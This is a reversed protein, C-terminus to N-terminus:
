HPLFEWLHGGVGLVSWGGLEVDAGCMGWQEVSVMDTLESERDKQM